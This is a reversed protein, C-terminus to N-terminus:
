LSGNLEFMQVRNNWSDCVLLHGAKDVSLYRPLNFEGDGAGRMGLNYLFKGQRDFVKICNDGNDSAIFYNDHQICHVPNIFSGKEGIRRLFQGDLTFIKVSKNNSDAVIINGDSDISLGRPLDLQHNLKGKVGFQHLYHGQDDFIQIRQNATDSVIINNTYFTIGYPSNFQGQQTGQRGFSRM